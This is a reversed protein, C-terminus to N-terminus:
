YETLLSARHGAVDRYAIVAEKDGKVPVVAQPIDIKGAHAFLVVGVTM